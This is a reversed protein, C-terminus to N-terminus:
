PMSRAISPVPGCASGGGNVNTGSLSLTQLNRHGALWQLGTETVSLQELRLVAVQQLGALEPMALDTVQTAGLELRTVKPFTAAIFHLRCEFCRIGM